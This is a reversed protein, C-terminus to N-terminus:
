WVGAGVTTNKVMHQLQQALNTVAATEQQLQLLRRAFM